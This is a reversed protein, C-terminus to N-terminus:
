SSRSLVKDALQILHPRYAECPLQEAFQVALRHHDQALEKTRAIGDSKMILENARHADGDQKFRRLIIPVLEPYQESAFLVPATALGLQMDVSTEKGMAEADQVVDLIDDVLQFAIGLNRGYEYAANEVVDGGDALVAVSHCSRALLSATKAETKQMYNKFRKEPEAATGLQMLEGRVLDEIVQAFIEIVRVNNLGALLQTASALIYDGALACERGRYVRNIALKGRRTTAEDIVDDHVLSATHIMETILAITEQDKGVSDGMWESEAVGDPVARCARGTAIVLMPRFLKGKGDFYYRSADELDNVDSTLAAHAAQHLSELRETM